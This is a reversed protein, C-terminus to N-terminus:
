RSILENIIPWTKRSDCKHDIFSTQYYALNAQKAPRNVINRQRKFLAWLAPDNSKIVQIKLIDREHMQKKLGSTIWSSGRGRVCAKRLPTHKDVIDLFSNKKDSWMDNPNSLNHM